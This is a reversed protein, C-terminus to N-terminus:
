MGSTWDPLGGGSGHKSPKPNNPNNQQLKNGQGKKIKNNQQPKQKRAKRERYKKRCNACYNHGNRTQVTDRKMMHCSDCRVQEKKKKREKTILVGVISGIIGMVGTIIAALVEPAM